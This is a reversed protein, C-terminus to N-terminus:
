FSVSDIYITSTSSTGSMHVQVGLNRIPAATSPYNVTITNWADKKLTSMDKWNGHWAWGGAQTEQAFPQIWAIQATAPIYIHFTIPHGAPVPPALVQAIATGTTMGDIQMSLSDNGAFRQDGSQALTVTFPGSGAWGQVGSEFNYYASDAPAAIPKLLFTHPTNPSDLYYGGAMIEGKDNVIFASTLFIKQNLPDSPNIQMNLAWSKGETYVWAGSNLDGALYSSSFQGVATGANNIKHAICEEYAGPNLRGIETETGNTNIFCSVDSHPEEPIVKKEYVTQGADNIDTGDFYNTAYQIQGSGNIAVPERSTTPMLTMAGHSYLFGQMGSVGSQYWYGVVDGQNNIATAVSSTADSPLLAHLDIVSGNYLMARPQAGQTPAQTYGVVQQTDNFVLGGLVMVTSNTPVNLQVESRNPDNLNQIFYIWGSSAPNARELLAYDQNNLGLYHSATDGQELGLDTVSYTPAAEVSSAVASAALLAGVATRISVSM